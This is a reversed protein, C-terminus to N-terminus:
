WMEVMVQLLRGQHFRAAMRSELIRVQVAVSGANGIGLFITEGLDDVRVFAKADAFVGSGDGDIVLSNALVNVNGGNGSGSTSSSIEGGGTIKLDGAQVGINGANGEGPFPYFESSGSVAFIGSPLLTRVGFFNIFFGAGDILLSDAVVNVSGSNGLGFTSSSIEGGNLIKLDHAQVSVSGANGDSSFSFLDNTSSVAFIGTRFASGGTGDILLSSARVTVDGGNGEGGFNTGLTSSSIEGGGIIKLNGAQVTVSGADGSGGVTDSFIGTPFFESRTGDIFLSDATVMVSGGSGDSGFFSLVGTSSSIEGGAVIELDRAQVAINGAHGSGDTSALIGTPSFSDTGNILISDANVTINGGTGGSLTATSIAGNHTITLDRAQVFINGANGNGNDGRSTAVIGSLEVNSGDIFLSDAIVRVNGANGDGFTVASISGGISTISHAIVNINGSNGSSFTNSSIEGLFGLRVDRAQVWINGADGAGLAASSISSSLLFLQDQTGEIFISDAMVRVNGGNGDGYTTTSIDTGNTIKVSQTVDIDITGGQVSGNTLSLLQSRNLNFNGGRVFVPGGGSGSTDIVALNLKINGLATFQSVDIASDVATADLQVEGASKVSVLNVRESTITGANLAVNGAVVSFSKLPAINLSPGSVVFGSSQDITNSGTISVRAPASGLFGFASVPASTLMNDGGLNANFRGGGVLKLYNATTVAFSGSVDLQAHEGFLVGAPNMFFLNAGQIDSRVTGDISSPSGSTVRALINHVNSPGTFTASQSSNLNFQNFSQFLNGGMQKGMPATITFNPGPLAGHTGFSGDLM